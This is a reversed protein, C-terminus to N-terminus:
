LRMQVIPSYMTGSHKLKAEECFQEWVQLPEYWPKTIDEPKYAFKERSGEQWRHKHTEGVRVGDPNRHESGLDLAYIRGAGRHIIAYSLKGAFKNYTGAVFLPYGAQSIVNVRIRLAPSRDKSQEWTLNGVIEKTDDSLIIEFEQQNIM